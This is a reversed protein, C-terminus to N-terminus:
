LKQPLPYSCVLRDAYVEVLGYDKLSTEIQQWDTLLQTHLMQMTMRHIRFWVVRPPPGHTILLRYFDFDRTLITLGYKSAYKWITDDNQESGLARAYLFAPGNFYAFRTPLNADVLYHPKM